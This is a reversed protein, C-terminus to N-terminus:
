KKIAVFGYHFNGADITKEIEFGVKVFLKKAEEQSIRLNDQPGIASGGKNWEMLLVKGGHKLVRYAEALLIEKKQNQFLIDKLIVWDVADSDIKSGNENEVNARVAVENMVGANKAKNEVFEVIHQLVDIAYVKGESGVAKAFPFSFYGPGCGFDAVISGNQVGIQSIIKSPDLFKEKKNEEM